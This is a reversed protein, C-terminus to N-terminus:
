STCGQISGQKHPTQLTASGRTGFRYTQEATRYGGVSHPRATNYDHRWAGVIRRADALNLFWHENLCAVRLDLGRASLTVAAGSPRSADTTEKPLGFGHRSVPLTPCRAPVTPCRVARPHVSTGGPALIRLAKRQMLLRGSPHQQLPSATM